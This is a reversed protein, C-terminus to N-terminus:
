FTPFIMSDTFIREYNETEALEMYEMEEALKEMEQKAKKSMLAMYAGTKSSNGVYVLKDKVADPLIGTGILSDAPLHAGFQGAIMVKDLDEMDIQAERLLATFGSLIAGKALQVQRVDGQTVLIQLKEHLIFERKTGNLQLLPFRYDEPSLKDKKIFAGTKKVLGTRLLEKVVALIGSGCIGAPEQRDDKRDGIVQIKVGEETIKVDEIAGQAARMGASINMGELAPGAACSCCLIRGNSTLVIEGNTGIDIFLVHGKEKQLECVYTGAVIDAGIYASVQPLCYLVTDKGAEIGIRSAPLEQAKTFEPRYPSRGISRADVGLLMHTMTCNAAVDIERIEERSVGAEECVEGIMGNVSQVIAEQLDKVGTEPHEYEYTIRTLVDLGYHKQANIMSASALEQGTSLEVLATVVTTTGIDIVIGYGEDFHDKEFAPIYGKTLVEHKREKKLLEVEMTGNVDIMCSLRIGAEIEEPKLLARETESMAPLEGQCIRVKCKGCIGKGSCPNDVFAGGELLADLLNAGEQCAISKGTQRIWIRAM